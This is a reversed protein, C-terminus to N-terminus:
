LINGSLLAYFNKLLRTQIEPVSSIKMSIVTNKISWFFEPFIRPAFSSSRRMGTSQALRTFQYLDKIDGISTRCFPMCVHASFPIAIEGGNSIISFHGEITEGPELTKPDFTYNVRCQTGVFPVKRALWLNIPPFSWARVPLGNISTVDFSGTYVTQAEAEIRVTEESVVIDPKEYEFIGKSLLSIKEKLTKM